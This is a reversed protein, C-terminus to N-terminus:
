GNLHYPKGPLTTDKDGFNSFTHVPSHEVSAAGDGFDWLYSVANVSLDTFTVTLPHCGQLADTSFSATIEPHVTINRVMTDSCGEENFVVLQLPYVASAGGRNLYVHSLVDDSANSVPSGDGFDWFYQDVGISENNIEVPFPHCGVVDEVTFAAEIYPHIVVDFTATDRCFEDTTAVLMVTFVTDHRRLNRDYRHIPNEETSSGGDGFEWFYTAAGTSNNQFIMEAPSCAEQPYVDFAAEVEPYVIVERQIEHFCGQFNDVRLTITYTRPVPTNNVYTHRLEPGPSNSTSGDGFDWAYIDAGYSQDTIIIEHPSCEAVTDFAFSAEIFPSVTIPHSSTDQCNYPSIAILQADYVINGPGFLNRYEHVPNKRWRPVETM